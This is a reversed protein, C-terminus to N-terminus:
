VSEDFILAHENWFEVSKQYETSGPKLRKDWPEPESNEGIFATILVFYEGKRDTSKKLIVIVSSCPEPSRGLVMPTPGAHGKRVVLVIKDKEDVKVCINEGIVHGLEVVHKEFKNKKM